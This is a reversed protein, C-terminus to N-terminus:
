YRCAVDQARTLDAHDDVEVWEYEQLTHALVPGGRDALEQYGDEYYLSSDRRWVAALADALSEAAEADVRTLGVYEGQATAPELSKHIRTVRGGDDINVKMEEHALAKHTDVALIVGTLTSTLLEQEMGVPHVTDGNVVLAGEQFAERALWLSYANNWVLAKDNRLSTLRLGYRAEYVPFQEEIRRAEFGTVVAVEDIGSERFNSLAIDLISDDGRVPLLTKPLAQTLPHLRSGMGAALIVGLM